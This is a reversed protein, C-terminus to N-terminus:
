SEGKNLPTPKPKTLPRNLRYLVGAFVAAFARDLEACAAGGCCQRRARARQNPRVLKSV